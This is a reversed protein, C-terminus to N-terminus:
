KIATLILDVAIAVISLLFIIKYNKDELSVKISSLLYVLVDRDEESLPSNTKVKELLGYDSVAKKRKKSIKFRYYFFLLYGGAGIYWVSRVWDPELHQFVIISRFAIASIIGLSFFGYLIYKPVIHPKQSNM